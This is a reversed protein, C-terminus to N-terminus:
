NMGPGGALGLGGLRTKAARSTAVWNGVLLVLFALLVISVAILPGIIAFVTFGYSVAQFSDNDGLAKTALGVQMATLVIAIYALISALWAFHGALFDSYTDNTNHYGRIISRGTFRYIKQLRYLRLEGYVFRENIKAYINSTRLLDSVIEKWSSWNFDAPVLKNEIAMAFDTERQLLGAYSLLFGQVIHFLQKEVCESVRGPEKSCECNEECALETKWDAWLLYNPIPKLFIRGKEWVLHMELQESIVIHRKLFLQHHLPRPSVPRGALWLWHHIDNLKHITM